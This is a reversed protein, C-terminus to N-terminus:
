LLTMLVAGNPARSGSVMVFNHPDPYFKKM